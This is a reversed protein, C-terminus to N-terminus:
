GSHGSSPSNALLDTLHRTFLQLTVENRSFFHVPGIKHKEVLAAKKLVALHQSVTSQSLGCLQVIQGVCVGFERGYAQQPFYLDSDKLWDLIKRRVPHAIAQLTVQLFPSALTAAPDTVPM